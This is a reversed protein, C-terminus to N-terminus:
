SVYRANKVSHLSVRRRKWHCPSGSRAAKASRVISVLKAMMVKLSWKPSQWGWGFGQGAASDSSQFFKEFLHPIEDASIGSGTDSVLITIFERDQKSSIVVNGSRDTFKVANSLLNNMVQEIRMKDVILQCSEVNNTIEIGKSDAQPMVTEAASACITRVDAVQPNLSLQADGKELLLLDEVLLIVKKYTQKLRESAELSKEDGNTQAQNHMTELLLNSSMLPSRIDHTIMNLLSQRNEKAQRLKDSAEHLVSDLYAIEDSGEIKAPM